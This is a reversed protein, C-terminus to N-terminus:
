PNTSVGTRELFERLDRVLGPLCSQDLGFGGFSVWCADPPTGRLHADLRFVRLTAEIIGRGRDHVSLLLEVSGERNMFQAQGGYSAHFEEISDAFSQVDWGFCLFNVRGEILAEEFIVSGGLLGREPPWDWPYEFALVLQKPCGIKAAREEAEGFHLEVREAPAADLPRTSERSV